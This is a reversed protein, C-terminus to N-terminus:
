MSHIATGLPPRLTSMNAEMTTIPPPMLSAAGKNTGKNTAAKMAITV